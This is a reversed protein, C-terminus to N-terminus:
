KKEVERLLKELVLHTQQREEPSIASLIEERLDDAVTKVQLYLELGKDTAVLLRKRRDSDTKVREV